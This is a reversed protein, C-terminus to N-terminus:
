QKGGSPKTRARVADRVRIYNTWIAKWESELVGEGAQPIGGHPNASVGAWGLAREYCELAREVSRGDSDKSSSGELVIGALNWAEVASRKADRLLSSAPKRMTHSKSFLSLLQAEPTPAHPIASGPADSHTLPLGSLTLAVMESAKAANQLFDLSKKPDQKQAYLVEAMHISLLSLRHIMFLQHLRQPPSITPSAVPIQGAAQLLTINHEEVTRAQSLLDSQAYHASLSLIVSALTRQSYPSQPLGKPFRLDGIPYMDQGEGILHLTRSWWQLAETGDGLRSCLDGLKWAVREANPARDPLNAWVKEYNSRAEFLANRNAMRELINAHRTLLDPITRPRLHPSTSFNLAHSIAINLFDHAYELGAHVAHIGGSASAKGSLGGTSAVQAGTGWHQAIWASRVAHRAKFGLAPDTGGHEGGSWSEAEETWGWRRLDEDDDVALEVKEVWMHTAGFATCTTFGVLLVGVITYQAFRRFVDFTTLTPGAFNQDYPSFQNSKPSIDPPRWQSSSSRQSNFIGIAAIGGWHEVTFGRDNCRRLDHKLTDREPEIQNDGVVFSLSKASAHTKFQSDM